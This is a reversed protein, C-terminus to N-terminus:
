PPVKITTSLAFPSRSWSTLLMYFLYNSPRVRDSSHIDERSTDNSAVLEDEEALAEADRDDVQGYLRNRSLEDLVGPIQALYAALITISYNGQRGRQDPCSRLRLM